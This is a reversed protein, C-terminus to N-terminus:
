APNRRIFARRASYNRADELAESTVHGCSLQHDKVWWRRCLVPKFPFPLAKPECRDASDLARKVAFYGELTGLYQNLWSDNMSVQFHLAQLSWCFQQDNVIFIDYSDSRPNLYNWGFIWYPFRTGATERYSVIYEAVSDVISFPDIKELRAYIARGHTKPHTVDARLRNFFAIQELTRDGINNLPRHLIEIPWKKLKTIIDPKRLCKLIEAESKSELYARMEQNMFAELTAIGYYLSSSLHQSREMGTKAEGATTAERFMYSFNQWVPDAVWTNVPKLEGRTTSKRRM